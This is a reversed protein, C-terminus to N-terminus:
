ARRRTRARRRATTTKPPLREAVWADLARHVQDTMSIGDRERITRLQELLAPPLRFATLEKPAMPLM